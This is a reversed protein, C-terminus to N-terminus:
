VTSVRQSSPQCNANGTSTRTQHVCSPMALASSVSHPCANPAFFYWMIPTYMCREHITSSPHASSSSGMYMYASSTSSSVPCGGSSDAIAPRTETQNMGSWREKAKRKGSCRKRCHWIFFKALAAAEPTASHMWMRTLQSRTELNRNPRTPMASVSLKEHHAVAAM